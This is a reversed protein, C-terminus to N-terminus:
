PTDAAVPVLLPSPRHVSMPTSLQIPLLITTLAPWTSATHCHAAVQTQSSMLTHFGGGRCAFSDLPARRLEAGKVPAHVCPSCSKCGRWACFLGSCNQKEEEHERPEQQAGHTVPGVCVCGSPGHVSVQWLPDHSLSRPAQLTSVALRHWM